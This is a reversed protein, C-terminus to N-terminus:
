EWAYAIVDSAESSDARLESRLEFTAFRMM